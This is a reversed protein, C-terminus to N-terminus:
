EWLNDCAILVDTISDVDTREGRGPENRIIWEYTTKANLIEYFSGQHDRTHVGANGYGRGGTLWRNDLAANQLYVVSNHTVCMGLVRDNPLRDGNGAESRVIWQYTAGSNTEYSSQFHNRTVVQANGGGRGGSLWRNDTSDVQLYITDGYQLCEGQKPDSVARTGTGSTSRVIWKYTNQLRLEQRSRRRNRTVVKATSRGRGGSLWRDDMFNVQLFVRSGYLVHTCTVESAGVATSSLFIWSLLCAYYM